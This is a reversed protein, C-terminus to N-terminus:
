DVHHDDDDAHFGIPAPLSIFFYTNSAPKGDSHLCITRAGYGAASGAESKTPADTGAYHPYTRRVGHFSKREGRFAM